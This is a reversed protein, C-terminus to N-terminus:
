EIDGVDKLRPDEPSKARVSKFFEKYRGRATNLLQKWEFADILERKRKLSSVFAPDNDLNDAILIGIVAKGAYRSRASHQQAAHHVRDVYLELRNLHDVDAPKGPKMLEVVLFTHSNKIVVLDFRKDDSKPLKQDAAMIEENIWADVSREHDFDSPELHEYDPGLVWPHEKIFDQMDLQGKGLKEPHRNDILLKLKDLISMKGAVDEATAVASIIDWEKIAEILEPLAEESTSNIRSIVKKVSEREM